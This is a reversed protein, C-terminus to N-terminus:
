LKNLPTHYAFCISMSVYGGILELWLQTELVKDQAAVDIGEGKVIENKDGLQRVLFAACKWRELPQNRGDLATNRNM